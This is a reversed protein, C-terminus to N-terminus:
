NFFFGVSAFLASNKWSENGPFMFDNVETLGLYYRAQLYLGMDFEYGVGGSVGVDLGKTQDKVDEEETIGDFEFEDKASLLVGVQPGAQLSLGDAITYQAAILLLIYDLKITGTIDGGGGRRTGAEFIEFGEEKFGSGMGAYLLEGHIGFDESISREAMVGLHFSTRNDFSDAEDGYLTSYVLGGIVGFKMDKEQVISVTENHLTLGKIESSNIASLNDIETDALAVEQARMSNFGMLAIVAFILFKNM